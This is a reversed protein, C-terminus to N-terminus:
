ETETDVFADTQAAELDHQRNEDTQHTKNKKQPSLFGQFNALPNFFLPPPGIEM